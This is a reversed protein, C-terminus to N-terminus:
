ILYHILAIVALHAPYFIYFLYRMDNGGKGRGFQGNGRQGNGRHGNDRQGNYLSLLPIAAFVGAETLFAYGKTTLALVILEAGAVLSFALAQRKFNGRFKYFVWVFLVGFVAWDCFVSFVLLAFTLALKTVKELRSNEVMLITLAAALTFLVNLTLLNFALMFPVQAIAAFILIRYLYKRVNHTHHYGEAAMYAIIPMTLRGIFRMWLAEPFFVAAIHDITMAAIAIVKLSFGDLQYKVM